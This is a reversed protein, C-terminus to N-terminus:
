NLYYNLDQSFSYAKKERRVKTCSIYLKGTARLHIDDPLIDHLTERLVNTINYAPNMAGLSYKRAETVTTM